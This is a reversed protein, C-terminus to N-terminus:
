EKKSYANNNLNILLRKNLLLDFFTKNKLNKNKLKLDKLIIFHLNKNFWIRMLILKRSKLCLIIVILIM